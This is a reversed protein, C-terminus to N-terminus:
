AKDRGLWDQYVKNPISYYRHCDNCRMQYQVMGKATISTKDRRVDVAGCHACAWRERAQVVGMHTKPGHFGAIRDYVRELLSVDRKCYCVMKAMAKPCDREKIAKWMEIDTRLKGESLIFKGLADLRNSPFAFRKRAIVLTDVTKWIPPVPLSNALIRTNIYPIDFRDGNQAVIEDARLLIPLLAVMLAADGGKNWQLSRIKREGAWKFCACIIHGDRPLYRLMDHNVYQKGTRWVYANYPATELDIFLRNM